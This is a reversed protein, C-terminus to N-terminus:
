KKLKMQKSEKYDLYIDIIPDFNLIGFLILLGLSLLQVPPTEIPGIRLWSTSIEATIALLNFTALLFFIGTGIVTMKYSKYYVYILTVFLGLGVYHRWTASTDKSLIIIWCYFILGATIILPTLLFAKQKTM